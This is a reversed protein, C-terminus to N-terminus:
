IVSFKSRKREHRSINSLAASHSPQSEIVPTFTDLDYIGLEKEIGAIQDVMKEFGKPGFLKIELAESKESLEDFTKKDVLSRVQPFLVTDERAEHPRYMTIFKKLLNKISRKASATTRMKSALLKKLQATVARGNKKM